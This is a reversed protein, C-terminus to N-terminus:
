IETQVGNNSEVFSEHREGGSIMAFGPHPLGNAKCWEVESKYQTLTEKWNPGIEDRLTSTMNQLKKAIADQRENESLEAMVPWQWSVYNMIDYPIKAALEPDRKAQWILFRYFTWDCIQELHKQCERWAPKTMLAQAKYDGDTATLLAYNKALGLPASARSCLFDIFEAMQPNPHKTDLLELRYNEPMQDFVIGASRMANLSVQMDATQAEVAAKIEDDTMNEFDVDDGFASPAQEEPQSASSVIQAVHQSNAKSAQVEFGVTDELDQVTGICSAAQTIGRGQNIRWVNTPMMWLNDFFGSDPDRKLM